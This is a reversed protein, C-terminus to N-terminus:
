QILLNNRAEKTNVTLRGRAWGSCDQCQYRLYKGTQTFRFGKRIMHTGGCKPCTVDEPDSFAAVNPHGEMWPRLKLYLEELSVVDQRNYTEMEDWAEPNGKLCQAWLEFGPFKGHEHKKETCLLETLVALRNSTFAFEKRAELLTDIVRFPSTPAFGNLIFRAKIKRLDFKKGNHAIVVDAENLLKWLRKMLIRDDEIDRRGRQDHYVVRPDGLWKAAFSLIYWDTEIQNWGVNEKFTRWVYALIPATEIDLVLIRPQNM